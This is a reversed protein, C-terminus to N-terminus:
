EESDQQKYDEDVTLLADMTLQDPLELEDMEANVKQKHLGEGYDTVITRHYRRDPASANKIRDPQNEDIFERRRDRDMVLSRIIEFATSYDRTMYIGNNQYAGGFIMPYDPASTAFIVNGKKEARKEPIVYIIDDIDTIDVDERHRAIIRKDTILYKIKGIAELDPSQDILHWYILVGTTYVVPFALALILLVSRATNNLWLIFLVVAAIIILATCIMSKIDFYKKFIKTHKKKQKPVDGACEFMVKEDKLLFARYLKIIRQNEELTVVKNVPSNFMKELEGNIGYNKYYM